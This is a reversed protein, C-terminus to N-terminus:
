LVLKPLHCRCPSQTHDRLMTHSRGNRKCTSHRFAVCRMLSSYRRTAVAWTFMLGLQWFAFYGVETSQHKLVHCRQKHMLSGCPCILYIPLTVVVVSDLIILWDIVIKGHAWFNLLSSALKTQRAYSYSFCFSFHFQFMFVALCIYGTFLLCLMVYRLLWSILAQAIVM